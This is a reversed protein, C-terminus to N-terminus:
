LRSPAVNVVRCSQGCMETTFGSAEGFAGGRWLTSVLFKTIVARLSYYKPVEYYM